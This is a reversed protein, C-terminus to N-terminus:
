YFTIQKRLPRQHRFFWNIQLLLYKMDSRHSFQIADAFVIKISRVCISGYLKLKSKFCYKGKERGQQQTAKTEKRQKRQGETHKGTYICLDYADFLWCLRTLLRM